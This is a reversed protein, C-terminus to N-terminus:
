NVGHWNEITAIGVGNRLTKDNFAFFNPTAKQEGTAKFGLIHPGNSGAPSILLEPKDTSPDLQAARITFDGRVHQEYVWWFNKREGEKNFANVQSSGNNPTTYIRDEIGTATLGQNVPADYAWFDQKLTGGTTYIYVKPEALGHNPTVLLEDAETDYQFTGLNCGVNGFPAQFENILEWNDIGSVDKYIRVTPAIDGTLCFAADDQYGDNDFDGSTASLGDRIKSDFVFHQGLSSLSGDAKLGRVLAQPGGEHIAFLLFQDLVGNNNQDLSVIGAGGLYSDPFLGTIDKALLANAGDTTGKSYAQLRTVQGPGSSTLIKPNLDPKTKFSLVSSVSNNANDSATTSIEFTRNPSLNNDPNITINYGSSNDSDITCSYGSQCSGSSILSTGGLIVNISSSNVGSQTDDIEFYINSDLSFDKVGNSPSQSVIAPATTDAETTFSWSSSLPNGANDSVSVSVNVEQSYGFNSDPNITINYSNTHELNCTYGTQCVGDTVALNNNIIVDLTNINLDSGSDALHFSINSDPAIDTANAEINPLSLSPPTTDNAVSALTAYKLDYNTSDYYSIQPNNSSDLALSSKWGVDGASDVTETVWDNGSKHTYKLDYNTSDYYSIQPNNSSDLALSSEWGVIGVSDVTEITWDAAQAKKFVSLNILGGLAIITLVAIFGSLIKIVKKKLKKKM